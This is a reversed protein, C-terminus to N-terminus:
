LFVAWAARLGFFFLACAVAAASWNLSADRWGLWEQCLTRLGIPAHVAIALVYLSFFTLGVTSGRTRGLIAAGTLGHRVAYVITVLHVLVCLALVAASARQALWLWTEAKASAGPGSV